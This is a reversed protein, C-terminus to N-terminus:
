ASHIAKLPLLKNGNACCQTTKQVRKIKYFGGLFRQKWNVQSTKLKQTSNKYYLDFESSCFSCLSPQMKCLMTSSVSMAHMITHEISTPTREWQHPANWSSRSSGVQRNRLWQFMWEYCLCEILSFNETTNLNRNVVHGHKQTPRTAKWISPAKAVDGSHRRM